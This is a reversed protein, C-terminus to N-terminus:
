SLEEMNENFQKIKINRWKAALIEKRMGESITSGFIWLERCDNLLRLGFSIALEREVPNADNMFRPLYCHPAIPFKGREVAFRCYRLANAVNTEVDGRFPSCIYVKSPEPKIASNKREERRVATMAEYATLDLYGESNKKCISM